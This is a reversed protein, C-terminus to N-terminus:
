AERQGSREEIKQIAEDVIGLAIEADIVQYAMDGDCPEQNAALKERVRKLAEAGNGFARLVASGGAEWEGVNVDEGYVPGALYGFRKMLFAEHGVQGPTKGDVVPVKTAEALQKELEDRRKELSLVYQQAIAHKEDADIRLNDLEAIRQKQLGITIDFQQRESNTVENAAKAAGLSIANAAELTAIRADKAALIPAIRDRLLAAIGPIGNDNPGMQNPGRIEDESPWDPRMKALEALIARVGTLESRKGDADLLEWAPLGWTVVAREAEWEARGLREVLEDPFTGTPGQNSEGLHEPDVCEFGDGGVCDAHPPEHGKRRCCRMGPMGADETPYPKGYPENRIEERRHDDRGQARGRLYAEGFLRSLATMMDAECERADRAEQTDNTEIM